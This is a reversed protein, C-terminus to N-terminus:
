IRNGSNRKSQPNLLYLVINEWENCPKESILWHIFNYRESTSLELYYKLPSYGLRWQEIMFWKFDEVEYYQEQNKFTKNYRPKLRIM